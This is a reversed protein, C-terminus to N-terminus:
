LLGLFHFLKLNESPEQRVAFSWFVREATLM